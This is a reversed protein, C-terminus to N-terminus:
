YRIYYEMNKLLLGFWFLWVPGLLSLLSGGGGDLFLFLFILGGFFLLSFFGDFFFDFLFTFTLIKSYKHSSSTSNLLFEWLNPIKQFFSFNQKPRDSFEAFIKCKDWYFVNACNISRGLNEFRFFHFIVNSHECLHQSLKINTLINILQM